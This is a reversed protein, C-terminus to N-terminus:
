ESLGAGVVGGGVVGTLMRKGLGGERVYVCVGTTTGLVSMASLSHTHCLDFNLTVTVFRFCGSLKFLQPKLHRRTEVCLINM